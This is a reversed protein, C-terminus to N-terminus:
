WNIDRSLFPPQQRFLPQHHSLLPNVLIGTHLRLLQSATLISRHGSGPRSRAKTLSLESPSPHLGSPTTKTGQRIKLYFVFFICCVALFTEFVFVLRLGALFFLGELFVEAFYGGRTWILSLPPIEFFPLLLSLAVQM